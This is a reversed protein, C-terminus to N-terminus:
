ANAFRAGGMSTRGINATDPSADDAFGFLTACRVAASHDALPAVYTKGLLSLHFAGHRFVTVSYPAISCASISLVLTLLERSPEDM